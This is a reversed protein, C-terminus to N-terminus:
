RLGSINKMEYLVGCEQSVVVGRLSLKPVPVTWKGTPKQTEEELEQLLASPVDTPELQAHVTFPCTSKPTEDASGMSLQLDTILSDFKGASQADQDIIGADILNKLRTIRTTLQPM